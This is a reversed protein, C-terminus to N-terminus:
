DWSVKVGDLSSGKKWWWPIHQLPETLKIGPFRWEILLAGRKGGGPSTSSRSQSNQFNIDLYHPNTSTFTEQSWVWLAAGACGRTTSFPSSEQHPSPKRPDFECLAGRKGGGPSTSSRSQSNLGLFGEGWWSLEGKEVVLPHAASDTRYLSRKYIEFFLLHM